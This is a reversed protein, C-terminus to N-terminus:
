KSLENIVYAIADETNRPAIKKAYKKIEDSANETAFSLDAVKLMSIDNEFDGVTVLTHAGLYDKLYLCANGKNSDINIMEVGTPWSRRVEVPLSSIATLESAFDRIIIANEENETVFVAKYIDHEGNLYSLSREPPIDCNDKAYVRVATIKDSFKQSIFKIVSFATAPLFGEKIAKGTEADFILSGNFSLIPASTKVGLDMIFKPYRGSAITFAGGESIFYEIAEKNKQSIKGSEYTLTGDVDSCLLIGSFKGMAFM